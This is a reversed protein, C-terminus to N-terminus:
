KGVKGKFDESGEKLKTPSHVAHHWACTESAMENTGQNRKFIEVVGHKRSCAPRSGLVRSLPHPCVPFCHDQLVHENADVQDKQAGHELGRLTLQLDGRFPDLSLRHLLFSASVAVICGAFLLRHDEVVHVVNVHGQVAEAGRPQLGRGLLLHTGFVLHQCLVRALGRVVRALDGEGM